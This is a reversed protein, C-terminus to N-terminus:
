NPADGASTEYHEEVDFIQFAIGEIELLLVLRIDDVQSALGALKSRQLSGPAGFHDLLMVTFM